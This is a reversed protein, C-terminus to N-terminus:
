NLLVVTRLHLLALVPGPPEKAPLAPAVGPARFAGPLVAAAAPLKLLPLDRATRSRAKAASLAPLPDPCRLCPAEALGSGAAVTSSAFRCSTEEAPCRFAGFSSGCGVLLYALLIFWPLITRKAGRSPL